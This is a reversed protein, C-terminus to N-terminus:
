FAIMWRSRLGEFMRTLSTFPLGIGRMMSKPTAFAVECRSVSWVIYVRTPVTMPVNSYMLGSCASEAPCSMSVRLSTYESPTM